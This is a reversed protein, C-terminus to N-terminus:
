SGLIRLLHKTQHLADDLANHHTGERKEDPIKVLNYMTRYCRDDWYKWPRERKLARYAHHIVVNDFGAGNGWTPLSRTGYWDDFKDLADTLSINDKRLEKLAEPNQKSWWEVTERSIHLGAEKCSALDVTCYFTDKIGVELNFKVAGISCISAHCDVSMTELDIMVQDMM